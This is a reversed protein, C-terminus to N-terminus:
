RAEREDEILQSIATFRKLSDQRIEDLERTLRETLDKHTDGENAIQHQNTADAQLYEDTPAEFVDKM